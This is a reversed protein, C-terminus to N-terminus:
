RVEDRVMDGCARVCESTCPACCTVPWLGSVSVWVNACDNASGNTWAFLTVSSGCSMKTRTTLTMETPTKAIETRWIVIMVITNGSVIEIRNGTRAEGEITIDRDITSVFSWKCATSV